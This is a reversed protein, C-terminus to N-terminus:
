VLTVMPVLSDKVKLAVTFLGPHLIVDLGFQLFTVQDSGEVVPAPVISVFAPTYVAGADAGEGFVIVTVAVETASVVTVAFVVTVMTVAVSGVRVETFGVVTARPEREWSRKMVPVFKMEVSLTKMM